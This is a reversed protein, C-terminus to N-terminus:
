AVKLTGQGRERAHGSAESGRPGSVALHSDMSVLQKREGPPLLELEVGEPRFARNRVQSM